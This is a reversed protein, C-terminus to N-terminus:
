KKAFRKNKLLSWSYYKEDICYKKRKTSFKPPKYTPLAQRKIAENMQDKVHKLFPADLEMLRDTVLPLGSGLQEVFSSQFLPNNGVSLTPTLNWVAHHVLNPM